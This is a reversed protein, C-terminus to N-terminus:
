SQKAAKTTYMDQEYSADDLGEEPVDDVKLEDVKNLLHHQEQERHGLSKVSSVIYNMRHPPLILATIVATMVFAVAGGLSVDYSHKYVLWFTITAAWVLAYVMAALFIGLWSEYIRPVPTKKKKKM